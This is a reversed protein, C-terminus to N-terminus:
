KNWEIIVQVRKCADAVAQEPTKKGYICCIEYEQSIADFIEKLDPVADVGRTNPAQRAFRIMKPNNNFYGAYLSDDLLGHRIPVQNCKELLRLDSVPSILFKVFQWAQSAYKTTSFITMNKHDGYTILEGQYDDPVPIPAYDYEFDDPKFREVHAINWPGTIQTALRGAIFQDGQFTTLPFYGHRYIDQFFQLVKESSKNNFIIKGDEFLTKGGSAAIYFTYFDFFRQWWVPKIDRYGMWQDVHGDGDLDRTMKQAVRLYESYTRPPEGIGQHRFHNVNYQVLIPNTKWPIQYFHGDPARFTQALDKPIRANIMSDFDAFQDVQILGGSSYYESMAGPWINSCIDPTTKGAIAALLVEEASESAPIPQLRVQIDSHERNWEAVLLTALEIEVQNSACWYSLTVGKEPNVEHNNCQSFLFTTILLIRINQKNKILLLM